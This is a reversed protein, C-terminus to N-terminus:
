LLEETSAADTEAEAAAEAAIDLDVAAEAEADAAAAAAAAAEAAAKKGNGGKTPKTAVVPQEDADDEDIPRIARLGLLDAAENEDDLTLTEGPNTIEPKGDVRREIRYIATFKPM